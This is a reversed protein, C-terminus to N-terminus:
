SVNQSYIVFESLEAVSNYLHRATQNDKHTQWWVKKSGILRAQEEIAVILAKGIGAGRAAPSVFLDELYLDPNVSWSSITFSYHALGVVIGDVEAVLAQIGFDKDLLRTWTLETQEQPIDTKYFRLYGRWLDDWTERDSSNLPRIIAQMLFTYGKSALPFM